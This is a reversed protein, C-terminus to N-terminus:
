TLCTSQSFSNSTKMLLRKRLQVDLIFRKFAEYLLLAPTAHNAYKQLFAVVLAIEQQIGGMEDLTDDIIKELKPRFEEMMSLLPFHFVRCLNPKQNGGLSQAIYEKYKSQFENLDAM